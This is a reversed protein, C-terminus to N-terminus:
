RLAEPLAPEDGADLIEEFVPADKDARRRGARAMSVAGIAAVALVTIEGMTDWGRFDVLIVNVVNRGGGEEYSSEVMVESMSPEDVSSRANASSLAFVFIAVGVAGAVAIRMPGAISPARHRWSRPLFRLVLVFLVTSLTEISFQTLALDPAGRAVYLGAMAYGVAGLMLAAAIRHRVISAGLAAAVIVAVLVVHVPEEVWKPLAGVEGALPVMPVLTVTLVIIAVYIPLSGNQLTATVRNATASIARLVGLYGQESSPIRRIAESARRQADAVPGRLATLAVGGLIILVSLMMASNFGAFLELPNPESGPYLATTAGEVLEDLLGPVLGFVVTIATLVVAPGVFLAGPAHATRSVVPKAPDGFRGLLGLVFRASYAFTLMSALVIVVLVAGAGAFDGHELYGDLAKEKAIFGLLPPIGAMSAASVIAVVQVIRWSPGFGHLETIERTGTEHDVIGVVMFLAAKFAAHALILVLGAEAIHYEGVGLLLMMFGLQSVTGYALLLKLDHQRMARLGGIAMTTAGVAMVVLRWNGTMAFIPAMRAVLYVGAKVMTASHLYASIPTPAVMAAPLWSSFPAQASKTFAGILVLIIGVNVASGSPPAALLESIRYSGGAQGIIILGALLVLGGAGTIFIAQTAAARARPNTDDNGILLFSTISTLEWFIFLAILQDSLVVGLMAGAFLVLVGALRALGPQDHTFYGLSYICILLGIGSVVVVMLLSFADLRLDISMGLQPIWAFSESVPDGDLVASSRAAAWALMALPPMAAVVFARPGLVRGGAVIAIGVVLHLVLLFFM